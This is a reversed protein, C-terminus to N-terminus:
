RAAELALTPQYARRAADIRAAALECYAESLEVGVFRRGLDVAVACTTGSGAFSDLVVCPVTEDCGCKCTPAWGVTTFTPGVSGDEYGSFATALGADRKEQSKGVARSTSGKRETVRVWPAGCQACAGRESTGALIARRPIEPPFTAFHAGPFGATAFTWVDRLNAYGNDETRTRDQRHQKAAQGPVLCGESSRRFDVAMGKQGTSPQRVATADYYYRARKSLLYIQEHARTPRDTVSEPMPSTKHWIIDARLYWGDSQLALAVRWPMGIIDKPKLVGIATSANRHPGGRQPLKQDPDYETRGGSAYGDGLNLWCTGDDRLVRWVEAFVTRIHCVYCTACPAEGRAWALCDHLPEGGLELPKMDDSDPLYSRLGWYPPSTVCCQVSGAEMARMSEIADGCVLTGEPWTRTV